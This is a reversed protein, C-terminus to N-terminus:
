ILKGYKALGIKGSLYKVTNDSQSMLEIQYGATDDVLPTGQNFYNAAELAVLTHTTVDFDVQLQDRIGRGTNVISITFM